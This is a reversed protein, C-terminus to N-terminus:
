RWQPRSRWKSEQLSDGQAILPVTNRVYSIPTRPLQVMFYAQSRRRMRRTAEQAGPPSLVVGAKVEMGVKVAEKVGESVMVKVVVKVGEEVNVNVGVEVNM